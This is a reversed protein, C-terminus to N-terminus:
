CQESNYDSRSGTMMSVHHLPLWTVPPVDTRHETQNFQYHHPRLLQSIRHRRHATVITIDLLCYRRYCYRDKFPEEKRGVVSCCLESNIGGDVSYPTSQLQFLILSHVSILNLMSCVAYSVSLLSYDYRSRGFTSILTVM